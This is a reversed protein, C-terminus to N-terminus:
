DLEEIKSCSTGAYGTFCNCQGTSYDCIGRGSCDMGSMAGFCAYVKKGLYHNNEDPLLTTWVGEQVCSSPAAAPAVAPPTPAPVAATWKCTGTGGTEVVARCKGEDTQHPACQTNTNAEIPTSEEYAKRWGASGTPAFKQVQFNEVTSADENTSCKDDLPDNSSPCEILACNPGRYGRDCLCGYLHNSDWADDYTVRYNERFTGSSKHLRHLQNTKAIAFDYAFDRNSRCTGHGSCGDPCETRQCAHGNFGPFCECLGTARDCLGQDSCEVKTKHTCIHGLPTNGGEEPGIVSWSTGRPCTRRSCDAGQWEEFHEVTGDIANVIRKCENDKEDYQCDYDAEGNDKVCDAKRSAASYVELTKDWDATALKFCIQLLPKQSDSALYQVDKGKENFCTCQDNLNCKGHGSCGNPCSAYAAQLIAASLLIYLMM